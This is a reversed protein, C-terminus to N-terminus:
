RVVMVSCPAHNVVKAATTGLLHDLGRYGHSGLVVYACARARAADVIAHWPNGLVVDIGALLEAPVERARAELEVRAKAQLLTVLQDPTVGFAEPPVEPPVGVARFLLVRAGLGKALRTGEDLVKSARASADLAVLILSM